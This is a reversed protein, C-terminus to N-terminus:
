NKTNSIKFIFLLRHTYYNHFSSQFGDSNLFKWAIIKQVKPIIKMLLRNPTQQILHLLLSMENLRQRRWTDHQVFGDGYTVLLSNCARKLGFNNFMICDAANIGGYLWVYVIYVCDAIAKHPTQIGFVISNFLLVRVNCFNCKPKYIPRQM